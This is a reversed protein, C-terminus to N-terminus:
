SPYIWSLFLCCVVLHYRHRPVNASKLTVPFTCMFFPYITMSSAFLLRFFLSICFSFLFVPRPTNLPSCPFIDFLCIHRLCRCHQVGWFEQKRLMSIWIEHFTANMDAPYNMLGLVCLHRLSRNQQSPFGVKM